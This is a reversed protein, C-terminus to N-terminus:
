GPTYVRKAEPDDLDAPILRLEEWLAEPIEQSAWELTSEIHRTSGVGCITSGVREDRMSFQLAAAGLPVGYRECVAERAVLGERLEDTMEMYTYRSAAQSGKALAGSSFPAANLVVTGKSVALDIMEEANRNMLTFRNHTILADFDWEKLIPIMVEVKGAALGVAQILGDAKLQFLTELAGGSGTVDSLDSAYEPDHLHVLQLTELGLAERSEEFSARAREGDFRNTNMDRDLKTSIVFGEPLGGLEQLAKGIRAESEGMGYNRSTDLFNVPGTMIQKLTEIADAEAVSYGYTGPMNGLATTGFCLPTVELGTQRITIKQKWNMGYEVLEPQM